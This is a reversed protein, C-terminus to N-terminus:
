KKAFRRVSLVRALAFLLGVIILLTLAAGWARAVADPFPLAVKEFIYVPLSATTSNFPNLVTQDNSLATLLLPATEGVVRGIGLITATVLGTRAAPLVVQLVVRARTSGLALAGTRLDEPILKLVEETTRAVTPLMLITYALAGTIVSQSFLGNYILITLIFLGAVVSPVGSMAQVFFRVYASFRGKVETIYVATGIGLPVAILTAILVIYFTGLIAHGIGGWGLPTSPSIYLSNQFIFGVSLAQFGRIAISFLISGLIIFTMISFGIALVMVVADPTSKRGRLHWAAWVAALLQLPFYIVTVLIPAPIPTYWFLLGVIAIPVVVAVLNIIRFEPTRRAWPQQPKQGLSEDRTYTLTGSGTGSSTVTM